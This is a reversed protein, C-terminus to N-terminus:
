CFLPSPIVSWFYKGLSKADLVKRGEMARLFEHATTDKFVVPDDMAAVNKLTKGVLYKKLRGVLRAVQVLEPMERKDTTHPESLTLTVFRFFEIKLDSKKKGRKANTMGVIPRDRAEV